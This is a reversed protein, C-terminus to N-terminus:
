EVERWRVGRAFFFVLESDKKICLQASNRTEDLM